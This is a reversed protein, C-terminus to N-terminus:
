SSSRTRDVNMQETIIDAVRDFTSKEEDAVTGEEEISKRSIRGKRSRGRSPPRRRAM